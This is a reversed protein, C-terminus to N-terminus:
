CGAYESLDQQLVARLDLLVCMGVFLVFRAIRRFVNYFRDFADFDHVEVLPEFGDFSNTNQIGAGAMEGSSCGDEEVQRRCPAAGRYSEAAVDATMAMRKPKRSRWEWLGVVQDEFTSIAVTMM